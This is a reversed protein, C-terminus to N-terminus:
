SAHVEGGTEREGGADAPQFDELEADGPAFSRFSLVSDMSGLSFRMSQDLQGTAKRFTVKLMRQFPTGRYQEIAKSAVFMTFM